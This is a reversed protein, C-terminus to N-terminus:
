RLAAAIRREQKRALALAQRLPVGDTTLLGVARRHRWGVTVSLGRLGSPTGHYAWGGSGLRVPVRAYAGGVQSNADRMRADLWSLWVRAGAPSRCLDTRSSVLRVDGASWREWYAVYGTVRGAVRVHRRHEAGGRSIAENSHVGSQRANLRFGAPLDGQRLVLAQPDVVVASASATGLVAAAVAAPLARM